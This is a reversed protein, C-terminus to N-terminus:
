QQIYAEEIVRCPAGDKAKTELRQWDLLLYFFLVFDCFTSGVMLSQIQNYM